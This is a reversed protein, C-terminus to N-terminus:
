DPHPQRFRIMHGSILTLFGTASGCDQSSSKTGHAAQSVSSKVSSKIQGPHQLHPVCKCVQRTLLCCRRLLLLLLLLLLNRLLQQIWQCLHTPGQPIGCMSAQHAECQMKM